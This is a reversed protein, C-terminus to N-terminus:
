RKIEIDINGSYYSSGEVSEIVIIVQGEYLKGKWSYGSFYSGNITGEVYLDFTIKYTYNFYGNIYNLITLITGQKRLTLM